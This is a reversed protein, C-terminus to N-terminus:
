PSSPWRGFSAPVRYYPEAPSRSAADEVGGKERGKWGAVGEPASEWGGLLGADVIEKGTMPAPTLDLELGSDDRSDSSM